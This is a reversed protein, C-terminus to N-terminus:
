DLRAVHLIAIYNFYLINHVRILSSLNKWTGQNKSSQEIYISRNATYIHQVCPTALSKFVGSRKVGKSKKNNM